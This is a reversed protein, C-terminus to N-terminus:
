HPLGSQDVALEFVVQSDSAWEPGCRVRLRGKGARLALDLHVDHEVSEWSWNGTAQADERIGRCYALVDDRTVGAIVPVSAECPGLRLGLERLLGKADFRFVCHGDQATIELDV